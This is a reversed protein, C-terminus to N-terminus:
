SNTPPEASPRVADDKEGEAEDKAEKDSAQADRSGRRHELRRVLHGV